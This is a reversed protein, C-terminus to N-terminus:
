DFVEGRDDDYRVLLRFSINIIVFFKFNFASRVRANSPIIKMCEDLTSM